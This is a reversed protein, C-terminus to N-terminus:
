LKLEMGVSLIPTKNLHQGSAFGKTKYGARMLMNLNENLKYLSNLVLMWGNKPKANYPDKEFLNPQKWWSGDVGINLENIEFLKFVSVDFRYTRYNNVAVGNNIGNFLGESNGYIISEKPSLTTKKTTKSQKGFGFSVRIPTHDTFIYSGINKEIVGYPTLTSNAFPTFGINFLKVMPLKTNNGTVASYMSMVLMPDFLDLVGANKIKKMSMSKDGYLMEMERSYCKLDHGSRDYDTNLYTYMIKDGYSFIYGFATVPDIEQQNYVLNNIIKQSLLYNAQSGGLAIVADKQINTPVPRSYYTAGSDLGIKIKRVKGKLEVIRLGHGSAEHNLLTVMFAGYGLGLRYWANDNLDFSEGLYALGSIGSFALDTGVDQSSKINNDVSLKVFFKREQPKKSEQTAQTAKNSNNNNIELNALNACGASSYLLGVTTILLLKKYM